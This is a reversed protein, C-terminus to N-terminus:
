QYPRITEWAPDLRWTVRASPWYDAVFEAVITPGPGQSDCYVYITRTGARTAHGAVLLVQESTGALLGDEFARLQDLAGGAPFGEASREAFELEISGGLDFLPFEVAKLPRRMTAIIPGGDPAQGQMLAWTPEPHRQQLAAIVGALAGAEISSPPSAISVEVGGIWREVGDEGLMWDLSLFAVQHQAQEPMSAFAPHHVVVHALQREEDLEVGFRLQALAVDVGGFNLVNGLVDPDPQRAGAYEWMADPPPGALRWRETRARLEAKGAPTVCLLHRAHRGKSFEWELGPDIAAVLASVEGTLTGYDGTAIAQEVRERGTTWWSWFAAVPDVAVHKKRGFM